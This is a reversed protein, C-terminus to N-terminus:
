ATAEYTSAGEQTSFSVEVMQQEIIAAQWALSLQDLCVRRDSECEDLLSPLWLIRHRIEDGIQYAILAEQGLVALVQMSRWARRYYFEGTMGAIIESPMPSFFVPAPHLFSAVSTPKM